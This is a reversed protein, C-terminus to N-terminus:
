RNSEEKRLLDIFLCPSREILVPVVECTDIKSCSVLDETCNIERLCQGSSSEQFASIIDPYSEYLRQAAQAADSLRTETNNNSATQRLTKVLFGACYADDLVFGGKEGACIIGIDTHHKGALKLATQCCAKANLFSGILVAPASAVSEVAKTGNTTTLIANRGDPTFRQLEFPSNGFDFGKVTLGNREGGLLLGKSRALSKADSITEATYVKRCRKALLTVMTSSARLVDVVVCVKGLLCPNVGPPVLAVDITLKRKRRMEQDGQGFHFDSTPLKCYSAQSELIRM